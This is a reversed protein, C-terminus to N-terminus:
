KDSLIALSVNELASIDMKIENKVRNIIMEIPSFGKFFEELEELEIGLTNLIDGDVEYQKNLLKFYM